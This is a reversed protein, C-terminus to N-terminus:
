VEKFEHLPYKKALSILVSRLMNKRLLTALVEYNRQLFQLRVLSIANFLDTNVSLTCKKSVNPPACTFLFTDNEHAIEVKEKKMFVLPNFIIPYTMCQFPRVDYIACKGNRLFVCKRKRQKLRIYHKIEFIKKIDAKTFALIRIAEPITLFIVNNHCCWSCMSCKKIVNISKRAFKFLQIDQQILSRVKQLIDHM